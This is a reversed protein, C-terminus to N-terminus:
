FGPITQAAAVWVPAQYTVQATSSLHVGDQWLASNAAYNGLGIHADQDQRALADCSGWQPTSYGAVIAAVFDGGGSVATPYPSSASQDFPTGYVIKASAGLAARRGTLYAKANTTLTTLNESKNFGSNFWEEWMLRLGIGPLMTPLLDIETPAKNTCDEITLSGIAYCAWTGLATYGLSNAINWYQTGNANGPIASVGCYRSDGDIALLKGKTVAPHTQGFYSNLYTEVQWVEAPSLQRNWVLIRWIRGKFKNGSTGSSGIGMGLAATTNVGGVTGIPVGRAYYRTRPIASSGIKNTATATMGWALYSTSSYPTQLGCNSGLQGFKAGDAVMSFQAGGTTGATFVNGTTSATVNDLVLFVSYEQSDIATKLAGLSAAACVLNTSGSFEVCPKGNALTTRYTPSTGGNFVVGSVKDTWSTLATGDTQPTIAAPDFDVALGTPLAPGGSPAASAIIGPKLWM